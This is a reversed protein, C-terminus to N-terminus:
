LAILYTLAGVIDLSNSQMSKSCPTLLDVFVACGLIYTSLM